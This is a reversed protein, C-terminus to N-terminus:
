TKSSLTNASSSYVMDAVIQEAEGREVGMDVRLFKWVLVDTAAMMGLLRRERQRKRLGHLFQEFTTEVWKRHYERGVDMLSRVAPLRDEQSLMRLIALGHAEYHAFLIAIAEAVQKGRATDRAASEQTGWWLYAATLLGDKSGFRLYLTQVTVGADNAIDQLRVEEYPRSGFYEWAAALLREGTAAATDARKTMQYNRRQAKDTPM